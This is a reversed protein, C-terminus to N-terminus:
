RCATGPCASIRSCGSLRGTVSLRTGHVRRCGTIIAPCPQKKATQQQWPASRRYNSGPTPWVTAEGHSSSLGPEVPCPALYRRSPALGHFTGCFLYRRHKPVPLPSITRYSRVARSTVPAAPCVGGPALGFLPVNMRGAHNGPLDSSTHPSTCGLHVVTWSLVRSVPRSRKRQRQSLSINVASVCLVCLFGFFFEGCLRLPRLSLFFQQFPVEAM